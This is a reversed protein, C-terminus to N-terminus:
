GIPAPHCDSGLFAPKKPGNISGGCHGSAELFKGRADLFHGRADLFHGRADLFHGRADQGRFGARGESSAGGPRSL